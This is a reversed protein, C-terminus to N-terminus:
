CIRRRPDSRGHDVRPGSGCGGSPVLPSLHLRRSLYRAAELRSYFVHYEFVHCEWGLVTTPVRRALGVSLTPGPERRRRNRSIVVTGPDILHDFIAAGWM